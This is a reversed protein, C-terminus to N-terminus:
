PCVAESCHPGPLGYQFLGQWAIVPMAHRESEAPRGVGVNTHGTAVLRRAVARGFSRLPLLGIRILKWVRTICNPVSSEDSTYHMGRPSICTVRTPVHMSNHCVHTIASSLAACPWGRWEIAPREPQGGAPPKPCAARRGGIASAAGTALTCDASSTPMLWTHQCGTFLSAGCDEINRCDSLTL